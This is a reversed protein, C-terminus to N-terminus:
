DTAGKLPQVCVIGSGPSKLHAPDSWPNRIPVVPPTEIRRCGLASAPGAEMASARGAVKLQTRDRRDVEVSCENGGALAGVSSFATFIAAMGLLGLKVTHTNM